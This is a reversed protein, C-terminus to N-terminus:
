GRKPRAFRTSGDAFKSVHSEPAFMRCDERVPVCSGGDLAGDSLSVRRYNWNRPRKMLLTDVAYVALAGVSQLIDSIAPTGPCPYREDNVM